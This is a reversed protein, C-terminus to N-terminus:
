SRQGDVAPTTATQAGDTARVDRDANHDASKWDAPLSEGGRAGVTVQVGVLNSRYTNLHRM